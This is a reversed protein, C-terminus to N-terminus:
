WWAVMRLFRPALRRTRCTSPSAPRSASGSSGLPNIRRPHSRRLTMSGCRVMAPWRLATVPRTMHRRTSAPHMWWISSRRAPASISSMSARCLPGSRLGLACPILALGIVPALATLSGRTVAGTRVDRFAVDDDATGLALEAGDPSFTVSTVDATPGAIPSGPTRDAVNYLRVTRAPDVIRSDSWDGYALALSRGDPSFAVSAVLGHLHSNIERGARAGTATFFLVTGDTRAAAILGDSARVAAGQVRSVPVRAVRRGTQENWVGLREHSLVLVTSSGPMPWVADSTGTPLTRVRRPEAVVASFVAGQTQADDHIRNAELALLTSVQYSESSLAGSQAVLRSVNATQSVDRAADAEHDARGRQVFALTGALLAIVLVVSAGVLLRRLLRNSRERANIQERAEAREARERAASAAVFDAELANIANANDDRALWASTAALRPGRYLESPERGLADWDHAAHTLHRHLQRGARDEDLWARLRPWERILAEHAVEVTNEDLTVLRADALRRLM